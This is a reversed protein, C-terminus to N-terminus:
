VPVDAAQAAARGEELFDPEIFAVREGTGVGRHAIAAELRGM